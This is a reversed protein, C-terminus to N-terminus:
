GFGSMDVERFFKGNEGFLDADGNSFDEMLVPCLNGKMLLVSTWAFYCRVAGGFIGLLVVGYTLFYAIRSYPDRTEIWPKYLNASSALM